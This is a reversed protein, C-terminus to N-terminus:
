SASWEGQIKLRVPMQGKNATPLCSYMKYCKRQPRLGSRARAPAANRMQCLNKRSTRGIIAGHGSGGCVTRKPSAKGGPQAKDRDARRQQRWHGHQGLINAGALQAPKAAQACQRGIGAIQSCVATIASVGTGAVAIDAARGTQGQQWQLLCDGSSDGNARHQHNEVVGDARGRRGAQRKAAARGGNSSFRRQRPPARMPRACVQVNAKQQLSYGCAM